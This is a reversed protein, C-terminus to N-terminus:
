DHNVVLMPRKMRFINVTGEIFKPPAFFLAQKCSVM